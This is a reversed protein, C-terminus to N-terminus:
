GLAARSRVIEQSARREMAQSMERIKTAASGDIKEGAAEIVVGGLLAPDVREVLFPQRGTYRAVAEQIRRRLEESLPVATRVIADVMGRADRYELRYGEAISRLMGLRGKRNIVQLTDVLLDSANGRFAKELVKARDEDDILPSALFRELEPKGDLFKVLDRLEDLLTEAQGTSDALELIARSYIRALAMERDDVSAM